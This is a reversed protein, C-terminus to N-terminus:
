GWASKAPAPAPDPNAIPGLSFGPARAPSQKARCAESVHQAWADLGKHQIGDGDIILGGPVMLARLEGAIIVDDVPTIPRRVGESIEFAIVPFARTNEKIAPPTVKGQPTLRLSFFGVNAAVITMTTTEKTQRIKQFWM